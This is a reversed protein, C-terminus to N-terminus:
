PSRFFETRASSTSASMKRPARQPSIETRPERPLTLTAALGGSALNRLTLTGNHAQAIDRAICLGLGTGGSDRNRSSELRFFPEFVQELLPAPIGPGDDEISVTLADGDGIRIDIRDGHRLANDVLNVLCRKLARPRCHYPASAGGAVAIERGAASVHTAITAVLANIDTWKASEEDNLGRFASLAGRVM